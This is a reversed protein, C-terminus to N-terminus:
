FKQNLKLKRAENSLLALYINKYNKLKQNELSLENEFVLLNEYSEGNNM